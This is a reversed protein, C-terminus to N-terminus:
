PMNYKDTAMKVFNPEFKLQNLAEPLTLLILLKKIADFANEGFETIMLDVGGKSAFVEGQATVATLKASKDKFDFEIEEEFSDKIAAVLDGGAKKALCEKCNPYSKFRPDCKFNEGCIQCPLEIFQSRKVEDKTSKDIKM